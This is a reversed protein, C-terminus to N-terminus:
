KPPLPHRALAHKLADRTDKVPGIRGGDVARDLLGMASTLDAHAREVLTQHASTPPAPPAAWSALKPAIHRHWQAIRAPGPCSHHSKNWRDFQAHYGFGPKDWAPCQRLPVGWQTHHFLIIAKISALQEATWEGDGMGQTEWSTFGRRRPWGFSNGDWQADCQITVPRYQEITGDRRIYGTSEVGDARHQYEGLLSSAESVAVHFIAGVPVIDPDNGRALPKRLAGPVWLQGSM